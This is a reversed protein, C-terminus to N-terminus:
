CISWSLTYGTVKILNMICYLLILDEEHLVAHNTGRPILQWAIIYVILRPTLNLNGAHFRNVSQTPNRVCSRYYQIKKFEQIRNTNGKGVKLGSYKIRAV